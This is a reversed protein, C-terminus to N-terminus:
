EVGAEGLPRALSPEWVREAVWAGRPRSGFNRELYDGFKRLQALKDSDPIAPLIPEYYGGGVLEVQARDVLQRIQQFYEPHHHEIWELLVGSYHLSMRIRPHRMLAEVFPAYSKQFAEEVVHDFNGVPQHSHIVLAFYVRNM